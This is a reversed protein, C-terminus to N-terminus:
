NKKVAHQRNREDLLRLETEAIVLNHTLYTLLSIILGACLKLTTGSDYKM